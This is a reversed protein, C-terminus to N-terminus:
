GDGLLELFAEVCDPDFRTGACRRLEAAAAEHPLPTRQPRFSTMADYSDVVAMIRAERPIASGSLGDPYGRGDFREHHHRIAPLALSLFAFHELMRIGSVPHQRVVAWESPTIPRPANLIDDPVAMNGIDHLEGAYSLIPLRQADLGLARATAVAWASVRLSHGQAYRHRDEVAAVLARLMDYKGQANKECSPRPRPKRRRRRLLNYKGQANKECVGHAAVSTGEEAGALALRCDANM